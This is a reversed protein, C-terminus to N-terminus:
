FLTELTCEKLIEFMAFVLLTCAERWKLDRERVKEIYIHRQIGRVAVQWVRQMISCRMAVCQLVSCCVAVCQWANAKHQRDVAPSRVPAGCLAAYQLVNCCVAVCQFVSCCAAVCQLVVGSSGLCVARV